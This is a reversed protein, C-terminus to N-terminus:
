SKRLLPLVKPAEMGRVVERVIREGEVVRRGGREDKGVVLM